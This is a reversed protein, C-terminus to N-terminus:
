NTISILDKTHFRAASTSHDLLLHVIARLRTAVTEVEEADEPSLAWHRINRQAFLRVTRKLSRIQTWFFDDCIFHILLPTLLYLKRLFLTTYHTHYRLTSHRSVTAPMPSTPTPAM